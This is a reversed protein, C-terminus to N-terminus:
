EVVSHDPLVNEPESSEKKKYILQINKLQDGSLSIDSGDSYEISGQLVDGGFNDILCGDALSANLHEIVIDARLHIKSNHDADLSLQNFRYVTDHISQNTVVDQGRQLPPTLHLDTSYLHLNMNGAIASSVIEADCRDLEISERGTVYIRLEQEHRDIVTDIGKRTTDFHFTDGRLLLTDNRKEEKFFEYPLSDMQYHFSDTMMLVVNRFGKVHVVKFNGPYVIKASGHNKEIEQTYWNMKYMAYLSFYHLLIVTVVFILTGLLIKNSGKM